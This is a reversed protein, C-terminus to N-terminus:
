FYPYKAYFACIEIAFPITACSPCSWGTRCRCDSSSTGFSRPVLSADNLLSQLMPSGGDGQLGSPGQHTVLLDLVPYDLFRSITQKDFYALEHYKADRQGFEIGGIGGVTKGSATRCRCGSPLYRIFGGTDIAPLQDIDLIDKPPVSPVLM